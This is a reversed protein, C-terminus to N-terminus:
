EIRSTVLYHNKQYALILYTFYYTFTVRWSKMKIIHYDDINGIIANNQYKSLEKVVNEKHILSITSKERRSERLTSCLQMNSFTDICINSTGSQDLFITIDKKM